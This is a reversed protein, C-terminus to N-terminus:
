SDQFSPVTSERSSNLLLETNTPTPFGLILRNPQGRHTHGNWHTHGELIQEEWHGVSTPLEFIPNQLQVRSKFLCALPMHRIQFRADFDLGM